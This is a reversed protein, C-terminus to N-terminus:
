NLSLAPSAWRERRNMLIPKAEVTTHFRKGELSERTCVMLSDLRFPYNPFLVLYQQLGRWM